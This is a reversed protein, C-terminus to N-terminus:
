RKKKKRKGVQSCIIILVALIAGVVLWAVGKYEGMIHLQPEIEIFSTNLLTALIILPVAMTSLLNFGYLYNNRIQNVQITIEEQVRDKLRDVELSERIFRYIYKGGPMNVDKEIYDKTFNLYEEKKAEFQKRDGQELERIKSAFDLYKYRQFYLETICDILPQKKYYESPNEDENVMLQKISFSIPSHFDQMGEYTATLIITYDLDSYMCTRYDLFIINEDKTESINKGALMLCYAELIKNNRSILSSDLEGLVIYHKDTSTDKIKEKVNYQWDSIAIDACKEITSLKEENANYGLVLSNKIICGNNIIVNLIDNYDLLSYVGPADIQDEIASIYWPDETVSFPPNAFIRDGNKKDNIDKLNGRHNSRSRRYKGNVKYDEEEAIQEMQELVEAIPKLSYNQYNEIDPNLAAIIRSLKKNGIETEKRKLVVTLLAGRKREFIYDNEYEQINKNIHCDITEFKKNNNHWIKIQHKEFPSYDHFYQIEEQIQAIEDKFEKNLITSFDFNFLDISSDQKVVEFVAEFLLITRMLIYEDLDCGKAKLENYAKTTDIKSFIAYITPITVEKGKGTDITEIYDFFKSYISNELELEKKFEEIGIEVIKDLVFVCAACDMDPEDHLHITLYNEEKACKLASELYQLNNIMCSLASRYDEEGHHDFLGMGKRNGVDFWLENDAINASPSAGKKEFKYRAKLNM